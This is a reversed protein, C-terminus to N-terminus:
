QNLITWPQIESPLCTFVTTQHVCVCMMVYVCRSTFLSCINSTRCVPDNQWCNRQIPERNRRFQVPWPLLELGHQVMSERSRHFGHRGKLYQRSTTWSNPNNGQGFSTSHRSWVSLRHQWSQWSSSPGLLDKTEFLLVGEQRPSWSWTIKRSISRLLLITRKICGQSYAIRVSLYIVLDFYICSHISRHTFWSVFDREREREWYIYLCIYKYIFVYM